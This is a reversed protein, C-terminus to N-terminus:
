QRRFRFVQEIPWTRVAVGGRCAPWYRSALLARRASATLVSDSSQVTEIRTSDARGDANVVFRLRVVYTSDRPVREPPFRLRGVERPTPPSDVLAAAVVSTDPSPKGACEPAPGNIRIADQGPLPLTGLLAAAALLPLRM